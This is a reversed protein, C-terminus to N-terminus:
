FDNGFDNIIRGLCGYVDCVILYINNKRCFKDFAIITDNACETLIIVEFQKFGLKELKNEDLNKKSINETYLSIKVYYNLEQLKHMSRKARNDGLDKEELFFQGNLDYIDTNKEDNLVLEKCGSLVINKAIEIGLTGCGHLFLKAESQKKVADLGLAGIYRSYRDKAIEENMKKTNIEQTYSMDINDINDFQIEKPKQYNSLKAGKKIKNEIVEQKLM